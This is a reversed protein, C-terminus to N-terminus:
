ALVGASYAFAATWLVATGLKTSIRQSRAWILLAVLTLDLVGILPM